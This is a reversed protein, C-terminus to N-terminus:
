IGIGLLAGGILWPWISKEKLELPEEPYQIFIDREENLLMGPVPEAEDVIIKTESNAVAYQGLILEGLVGEEDELTILGDLVVM